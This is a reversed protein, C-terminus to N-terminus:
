ILFHPPPPSIVEANQPHIYLIVVISPDSENSPFARESAAQRELHKFTRYSAFLNFHKSMEPPGLRVRRSHKDVNCLLWVARPKALAVPPLWHCFRQSRQALFCIHTSLASHSGVMPSCPFKHYARWFRPVRAAGARNSNITGIACATRFAM